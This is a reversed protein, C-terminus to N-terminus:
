KLSDLKSDHVILPNFSNIYLRYYNVMCQYFLSFIIKILEYDIVQLVHVM